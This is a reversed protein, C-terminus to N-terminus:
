VLSDLCVRQETVGDVNMVVVPSSRTQELNKGYEGM